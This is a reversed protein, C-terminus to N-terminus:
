TVVIQLRLNSIPYGFPLSSLLDGSSTEEWFSGLCFKTPNPLIHYSKTPNPQIQPRPLMPKKFEPGFEVVSWGGAERKLRSRERATRPTLRFTKDTKEM